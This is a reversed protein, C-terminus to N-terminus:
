VAHEAGALPANLIISTGGPPRVEPRRLQPGAGASLLARRVILIHRAIRRQWTATHRSFDAAVAHYAAFARGFARGGTRGDTRGDARGDTRGAPATARHGSPSALVSLRSPQAPSAARRRRPLETSLPRAM